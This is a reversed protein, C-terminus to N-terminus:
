AACLFNVQAFQSLRGDARSIRTRLWLRQGEAIPWQSTLLTPSTPPVGSAGTIFGDRRWPGNFFQIGANQPLGQQTIQYAGDESAWGATDDWSMSWQQTAESATCVLSQEAKGLTFIGPADNIQSAGIDVRPTNCRIFHNLATLHVAQGLKNFWPVNTAYVDWANRQAQTLTNQWDIALNRVIVRIAAQKDTNPNVPISRNRKYAGFRNHSFTTGGISGSVQTGEPHVVLAM